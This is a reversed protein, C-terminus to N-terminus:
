KKQSAILYIMSQKYKEIDIIGTRRYYDFLQTIKFAAYLKVGKKALERAGGEERDIIVMIDTIEYGLEEAARIAELKTDAGTVLDDIIRLKKKERAETKGVIKRGTGTQEKAFIDDLFPIGSAKSYAKAIDTGAKPIGTCFDPAVDSPIEKLVLGIQDYVNAPLNRQNIYYPSLPDEINKEHKKLAFEDEQAFDFISTPRTVKYLEYKGSSLMRRRGVEANIKTAAYLNALVEQNATLGEPYKQMEANAEVM